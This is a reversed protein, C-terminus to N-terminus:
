KTGNITENKQYEDNPRIQLDLDHIRADHVCGFSGLDMLVSLKTLSSMLEM